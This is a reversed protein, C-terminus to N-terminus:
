RNSPHQITKFKSDKRITKVSRYDYDENYEYIMYITGGNAKNGTYSYTGREEEEDWTSPNKGDASASTRYYLQFTKDAKLEIKYNYYKNGDKEWDSMVYAGVPFEGKSEYDCYFAEDYVKFECRNGTFSYTFKAINETVRSCSELKDFAAIVESEQMVEYPLSNYLRYAEDVTKIVEDYNELSIQNPNPLTNTKQIFKAKLEDISIVKLTIVQSISPFEASSITINITSGATLAPNVMFTINHKDKTIEGQAWTELNDYTFNVDSNTAEEGSADLGFAYLYFPYESNTTVYILGDVPMPDFGLKSTARYPKAILQNIADILAQYANYIETPTPNQSAAVVKAAQLKSYMVEYSEDEYNNDNLQTAEIILENLSTLTIETWKAYLILDKTIPTSFDYVNTLAADTYWGEFAAGEKTPTLPKIACGGEAVGQPDIANGGNVNFTVTYDVQQWKAYLTIDKVVIDSEFKWINTYNPEKYWGVFISKDKTPATPEKIKTGDNVTQPSVNSGGQSDFTVTFQEPLKNDDDSGCSTIIVTLLAIVCVKSFYHKITKMKM